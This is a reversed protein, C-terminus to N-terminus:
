SQYKKYEEIYAIKKPDTVKDLYLIGDLHDLEHQFVTALFNEAIMKKQQGEENLFNVQIKQPREVYGRLGPISLCGEWFGKLKYKLIDITPNIVVLPSLGEKETLDKYLTKNETPVSVIAIQKSIGIQPAAIGVGNQHEMTDFLDEIITKYSGNAIEELTFPQAKQRLLPHGMKLVPRIM